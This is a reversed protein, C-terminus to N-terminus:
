RHLGMTAVLPVWKQETDLKSLVDAL